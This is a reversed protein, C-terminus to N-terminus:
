PTRRARVARRAILGCGTVGLVLAAGLALQRTSDDRPKEGTDPLTSPRVDGPLQAADDSIITFRGAISRNDPMQESADGSARAVIIFLNYDYGELETLKTELTGLGTDATAIEGVRYATGDPAVMWGEYVYGDQPPLNKVDVRAYAEAFSFELIGEANQPGWTSVGQLYTLKVLQPVGNARASGSAGTLLAVCAVLAVVLVSARHM